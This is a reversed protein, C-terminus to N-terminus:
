PVRLLGVSKRTGDAILWARYAGPATERGYDNRGDWVVEQRGSGLGDLEIRRVRRGGSDVIDIVAGGASTPLVVPIRVPDGVHSPNPYGTEIVWAAGSAVLGVSFASSRPGENGSADVASIEYWVTPTGDPVTTDLYQTDTILTANLVSWPGGASFARYVRYGQLDPETNSQWTVRIGTQEIGANLGRPAAPPSTDYVWDWTVVNSLESWNGADDVTRIAFYYTTGYTLGHVVVSQISGPAGPSPTGQVQNASDFNSVDIPQQSVRLDYSTAVGIRGDDGPATWRVTVTDPSAAHALLPALALLLISALVPFWRRWWPRPDPRRRMAPRYLLPAAHAAGGRPARLHRARARTM